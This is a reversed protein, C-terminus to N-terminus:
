EDGPRRPAGTHQCGHAHAEVVGSPNVERRCGTLATKFGGGTIVEPGAEEPQLAAAVAARFEEAIFGGVQPKPAETEMRDCKDLVARVAAILRPVADHAAALYQANEESAPGDGTVVPVVYDCDDGHLGDVKAAWVVWLPRGEDPRLASTLYEAPTEDSDEAPATAATWPGPTARKRASDLDDLWATMNEM